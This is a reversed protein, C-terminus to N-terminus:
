FDRGSAEMPRGFRALRQAMDSFSSWTSALFFDAATLLLLDALAYQLQRASRDFLGRELWAVRAGYRDAFHRYTEPLDAALFITDARGEAILGDIRAAFHRFHSKKRWDSIERHRGAPWNAPAEYSLHDFGKGTGMRIHAAVQNPRRVGEMLDRVPGSPVLTRLFQQEEDFLESISALSDSARVYMDGQGARLLAASDSVGKTPIKTDPRAEQEIEMFNHVHRASKRALAAAEEDEIVLGDYILLDSLRCDCHHDRQWIVVLERGTHGALAAASAM